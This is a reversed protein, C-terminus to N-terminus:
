AHSPALIFIALSEPEFGSRLMKFKKYKERMADNKSNAALPVISVAIPNSRVMIRVKELILHRFFKTPSFYFIMLYM